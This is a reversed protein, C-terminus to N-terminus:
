IDIGTIYKFGTCGGYLRQHIEAFIKKVGGENSRLKSGMSEKAYTAAEKKLKKVYHDTDSLCFRLYPRNLSLSGIRPRRTVKANAAIIRSVRDEELGQTINACQLSSEGLHTLPNCLPSVMQTFIVIGMNIWGERTDTILGTPIAAGYGYPVRQTIRRSEDLNQCITNVEYILRKLYAIRWYVAPCSSILEANYELADYISTKFCHAWREAEDEDSPLFVRQKNLLDLRHVLAALESVLSVGSCMEYYWADEDCFSEGTHKVLNGNASARAQYRLTHVLEEKSHEIIYRCYAEVRGTECFLPSSLELEPSCNVGFAHCEEWKKTTEPGAENISTCFEPINEISMTKQAGNYAKKLQLLYQIQPYDYALLYDVESLTYTAEHTPITCLKEKFEAAIQENGSNIDANDGCLTGNDSIPPLQTTTGKIQELIANRDYLDLTITHGINTHPKTIPKKLPLRHRLIYDQLIRARKQLATRVETYSKLVQEQPLKISPIPEELVELWPQDLFEAGETQTCKKDAPQSLGFTSLISEVAMNHSFENIEERRQKDM